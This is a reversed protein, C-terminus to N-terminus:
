TKRNRARIPRYRQRAEGNMKHGTADAGDARRGSKRDNRGIEGSAYSDGLNLWLQGSPHLACRIHRFLTVLKEVYEEPTEELGIQEKEGKYDRLAYYPPSTVCLHVSNKPLKEAWKLSDGVDVSFDIERKTEPDIERDFVAQFENM